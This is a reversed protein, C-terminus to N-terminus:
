SMPPELYVQAGQSIRRIRQAIRRPTLMFRNITWCSGLYVTAMGIFKAMDGSGKTGWWQWSSTLFFIATVIVVSYAFIAESVPTVIRKHDETASWGISGSKWANYLEKATFRHHEMLGELWERAPKPCWIGTNEAFEKQLQSERKSSLSPFLNYNNIDRTAAQGGRSATAQYKM